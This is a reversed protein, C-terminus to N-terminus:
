VLSWEGSESEHTIDIDVTNRIEEELCDTFKLVFAAKAAPIIAPIAEPAVVSVAIIGAAYVAGELACKIIKDKADQAIDAPYSVRLELWHKSSRTYACPYPADFSEGFIRVRRHCIEMKIEPVGSVSVLEKKWVEKDAQIRATDPEESIFEVLEYEDNSTLYRVEIPNM